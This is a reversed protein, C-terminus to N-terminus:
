IMEHVQLSVHKLVRELVYDHKARKLSFSCENLFSHGNLKLRESAGKELRHPFPLPSLNLRVCLTNLGALLCGLVFFAGTSTWRPKEIDHPADRGVSV